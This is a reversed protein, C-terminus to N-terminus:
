QWAATEFTVSTEFSEAEVLAVLMGALM